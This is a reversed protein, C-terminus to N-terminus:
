RSDQNERQPTPRKGDQAQSKSVKPIESPPQKIRCRLKAGAFYHRSATGVALRRTGFHLNGRGRIMKRAASASTVIVFRPRRLAVGIQESVMAGLRSVADEIEASLLDSAAPDIGPFTLGRAGTLMQNQVEQFAGSPNSPAHQACTLAFLNAVFVELVYLRVEAKIADENM